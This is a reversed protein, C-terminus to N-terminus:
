SFKGGLEKLSLRILEEVPLSSDFRGVALSADSPAYGLVALAEAAKEANSSASIVASPEFGDAAGFSKVKDKLELAIRKALKPGVGNARTLLKSDGTAVAAAVKEPTLESLIALGAKPGVGNVGTLMKFCNLETITAFGFLDLADERVNLYTYLKAEE